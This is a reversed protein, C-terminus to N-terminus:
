YGFTLLLCAVIAGGIGLIFLISAWPESGEVFSRAIWLVVLALPIAVGVTLLTGAAFHGDSIRELFFYVAAATVLAFLALLSFQHRRADGLPEATQGDAPSEDLPSAPPEEVM